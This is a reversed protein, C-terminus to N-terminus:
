NNKFRHIKGSLSSPLTRTTLDEAPASNDKGPPDRRSGAPIRPISKLRYKTRLRPVKAMQAGPGPGPRAQAPGMPGHAMPRHAWPGMPRHAWPGMPGRAWLGMPAMPGMPGNPGNNGQINGQINGQTNSGARPNTSPGTRTKSIGPARMPSGPPHKPESPASEPM